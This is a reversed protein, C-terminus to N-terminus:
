EPPEVHGFARDIRAQIRRIEEKPVDPPPVLWPKKEKQRQLLWSALIDVELDPLAAIAQKIEALTAVGKL